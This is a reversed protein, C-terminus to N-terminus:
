LGTSRGDTPKGDQYRYHQVLLYMSVMGFITEELTAFPLHFREMPNRHEMVPCGSTTMVIGILPSLGAPDDVWEPVQLFLRDQYSRDDNGGANM